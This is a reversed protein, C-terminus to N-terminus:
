TVQESMLLLRVNCRCPSGVLKAVQLIGSFILQFSTLNALNKVESWWPLGQLGAQQRHWAEVM